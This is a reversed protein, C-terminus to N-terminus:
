NNVFSLVEGRQKSSNSGIIFNSNKPLIKFTASSNKPAKSLIEIISNFDLYNNDLIYETKNNYTKLDTILEVPADLASELSPHQKSSVLIYQGTIRDQKEDKPSTLRAVRIGIWVLTDFIFNSKFHKDYFIQMAGYFRKAYSKDKLTSEGKYHIISSQGVYYNNYGAKLIKYSLDIDEGYMFYDEDFGGVANYIDKKLLMFAGVFVAVPGTDIENVESAYYTKSWGLIKKIAVWPTPIHRKSEPLFRGQGDILRCGVIGIERKQDAFKLLSSFTNESVVTDPNLICLYDGKAVEVGINNGKSFGYNNDNEILVVEPFLSKVMLCSDDTSQNDVVIIEADLDNVAACVSRLCLELFHRVNYNLIIVSLKM